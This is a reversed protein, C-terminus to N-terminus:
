PPPRGRPRARRRLLRRVDDLGDSRTAAARCERQRARDAEALEAALGRRSTIPQKQEIEIRQGFPADAAISLPAVSYSMMPDDLVGEQARSRTGAAPRGNCCRHRRYSYVNWHVARAVELPLVRPSCWRRADIRRSRPSARRASGRRAEAASAAFSRTSTSSSPAVEAGLESGDSDRRSTCLLAYPSSLRQARARCARLRHRANQGAHRLAVSHTSRSCCSTTRRRGSTSSASSSSSLPRSVGRHDRSRPACWCRAM